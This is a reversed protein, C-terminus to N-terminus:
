ASAACASRPADAAQSCQVSYRRWIRAVIRSVPRQAGLVQRRRHALVEALQVAAPARLAVSRVCAAASAPPPSTRRRAHRRGGSLRQEVAGLPQDRRRRRLPRDRRAGRRQLRAERAGGVNQELQAVSSAGILASTVRPDRLVWAIALQALTQGRRAAIENLARVRALNEESLMRRTSTGRRRRVRSDEPIGDCTATPSCARRSRRSSSRASATRARARRAAGARDLPQAALLLAPPHAAAHRARALIAIAEETRQRRTPASASTSRRARACRPTSRAWRRRSRRRRTSATRTSSTSTTSAWGRRPEPRPERAPVQALGVRRLPGAVHRLRGQDLHDARRPLPPLGRRLHPRLEDRRRRLAARLQQRPRLAHHRPRVRPAPDRPQGRAAPRRRLEAVARALDGAAPPRQAGVRRYPMREYRAPSPWTSPCPARPISRCARSYRVTRAHTEPHAVRLAQVLDAVTEEGVQLGVAAPAPAVRPEDDVALARQQDVRQEVQASVSCISLAIRPATGAAARM